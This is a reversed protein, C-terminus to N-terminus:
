VIEFIVYEINGLHFETHERLGDMKQFLPSDTSIGFIKKDEIFVETFAIGVLILGRNARILSGYSVQSHVTTLDIRLLAVIDASLQDLRSAHLEIDAMMQQKPSEIPDWKDIDEMNANELREKQELKLQHLQEEKLRILEFIIQKKLDLDIALETKM